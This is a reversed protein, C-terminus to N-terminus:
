CILGCALVLQFSISFSPFSSSSSFARCGRVTVLPFDTFPQKFYGKFSPSSLARGFCVFPPTWRSSFVKLLLSTSCQVSLPGVSSASSGSSSVTCFPLSLFLFLASAFTLCLSNKRKEGAQRAKCHDSKKGGRGSDADSFLAWVRLLQVMVEAGSLLALSLSTSSLLSSNYPAYLRGDSEGKGRPDRM